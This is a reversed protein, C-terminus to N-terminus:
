TSRFSKRTSPRPAALSFEKLHKWSNVSGRSLIQQPHCLSHLFSLASANAAKALSVAAVKAKDRHHARSQAKPRVLTSARLNMCVTYLVTNELSKLNKVEAEVVALRVRMAVMEADSAPNPVAVLGPGCMGGRQGTPNELRLLRQEL